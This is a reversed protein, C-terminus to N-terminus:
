LCFLNGGSIIKRIVLKKLKEKLSSKLEILRESDQALLVEYFM